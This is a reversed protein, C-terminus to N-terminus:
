DQKRVFVKFTIEAPDNVANSKLKVSRLHHGLKSRTDFSVRLSDTVGPMVPKLPFHVRTCICGVQYDTIILPKDGTNTFVYYHSLQQGETAKPFKHHPEAFTIQAQAFGSKAMLM